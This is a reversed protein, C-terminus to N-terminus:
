NKLAGLPIRPGFSLVLAQCTAFVPREEGPSVEEAPVLSAVPTSPIFTVRAESLGQWPLVEQKVVKEGPLEVAVATGHM